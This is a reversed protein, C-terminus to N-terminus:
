NSLFLAAERNRRALISANPKGNVNDWMTFHATLEAPDKVNANILKLLSSKQLAGEGLNFAFSVLANFQHQNLPVTVMRNVAAEFHSLDASLFAQSQSETIVEGDFVGQTHGVGITDVGAACKYEHLVEGEEHTIFARGADDITLNNTM